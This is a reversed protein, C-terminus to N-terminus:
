NKRDYDVAIRAKKGTRERLYYHKARRTKGRAIIEIDEVNPSHFPFVREVGMGNSIKRVRFHGNLTGPEKEAICIGQFIQIRSKAGETIRYHVAVTDGSRFTPFKSAKETAHVENVVDTLNM